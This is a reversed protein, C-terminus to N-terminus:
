SSAVRVKLGINDIGTTSKVSGQARVVASLGYTTILGKSSESAANRNYPLLITSARVVNPRLVTRLTLKGTM